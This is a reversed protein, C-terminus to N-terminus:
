KMNKTNVLDVIEDMSKAEVEGRERRRQVEKFIEELGYLLKAQSTAINYPHFWLHFVKKDRIAKRIGKKAKIVRLDISLLRRIGNKSRYIMSGPINYLGQGYEPLSVPPSIALLQDIISAVKKFIPPFRRYWLPEVGRYAEFEYNKLEDLYGVNNRPFIFSRLKLGAKEAEHICNSLDARVTARETNENGYPIHAFSHSAIEQRVRCNAIKKIIDQGYWLPEEGENTCPSEEFWDKSYWPYTSRPFDLHKQGNVTNCEKLFLHGVIAWTASINYKELLMLIKEICDRSQRYYKINNKLRDPKDVTGWALETDLSLVFIGRDLSINKEKM